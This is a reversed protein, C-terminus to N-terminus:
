RIINLIQNFFHINRFLTKAFTVRNIIKNAISFRDATGSWLSSKISDYSYLQCKEDIESVTMGEKNGLRRSLKKNLQIM